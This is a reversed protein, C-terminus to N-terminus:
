NESEKQEERLIDMRFRMNEVHHPLWESIIRQCQGCILAPAAGFTKHVDEETGCIKCAKTDDESTKMM